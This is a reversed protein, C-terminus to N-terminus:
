QCQEMAITASNKRRLKNLQLLFTVLSDLVPILKPSGWNFVPLCTAGGWGALGAGDRGVVDRAVGGRRSVWFVWSRVEM